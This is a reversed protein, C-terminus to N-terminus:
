VEEKLRRKSGQRLMCVNVGSFLESSYKLCYLVESGLFMNERKCFEFKGDSFNNKLRKRGLVCFFEFKEVIFLRWFIIIELRMLENSTKSM